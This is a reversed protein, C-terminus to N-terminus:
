KLLEDDRIIMLISAHPLIIYKENNFEIEFGSKALYIALDGVNVQLPIYKAENNRGEWPEIEDTISPIPYGPGVKVIYGSQTKENEQVTPPLYLGSKTKNKPNKPKILVRDGIMIFKELNKEEIVLSM